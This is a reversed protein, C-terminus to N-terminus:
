LKAAVVATVEDARLSICNVGQVVGTKPPVEDAQFRIIKSNRSIVFLDTANASADVPAASVLHDTKLAVKGGGGPSKNAAFGQMLRITGKGDSSMLFVGSEDNAPAVASVVDGKALRIGLCGSQPFVGPPM